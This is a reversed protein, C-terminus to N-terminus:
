KKYAGCNTEVVKSDFYKGFAWDILTFAMIVIGIQLLLRKKKFEM